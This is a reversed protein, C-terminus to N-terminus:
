KAAEEIARELRGVSEPNAGEGLGGLALRATRDEVLRAFVGARREYFKDRQELFFARDVLKESGYKMLVDIFPAVLLDEPGVHGTFWVMTGAAGVRVIGKVGKVIAVLRPSERLRRDLERCVDDVWVEAERSLSDVYAADLQFLPEAETSPVQAARLADAMEPPYREPLRRVTALAEGLRVRANDQDERDRKKVLRATRSGPEGLGFISRVFGGIPATAARLRAYLDDVYPVKLGEALLRFVRDFEVIQLTTLGARYSRAAASAAERVEARYHALSDAERRLLTLAPEAEDRLARAAGARAGRRVAAPDKTLESLTKALPGLTSRVDDSRGRGEVPEPRVSSAIYPVTYARAADAAAGVRTAAGPLVNKRFDEEAEPASAKNLVAFVCKGHRLAKELFSVCVEDNYKEQSAVFVVADAAYLLDWAVRKNPGFVSDIDPSDVLAIERLEPREHKSVLLVGAAREDNPEEPSAIPRREYGPLLGGALCAEARAAHVYLVAAKTGRAIPTPRAVETGAIANLVTTKGVNTGGAVIAIVPAGAAEAKLAAPGLKSRWIRRCEDLASLIKARYGTGPLAQVGDLAVEFPESV